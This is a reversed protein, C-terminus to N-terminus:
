KVETRKAYLSDCEDFFLLSQSLEAERFIASLNKASEGIYKSVVTSLDIQFLQLSLERALVQAAMTKGCGSPGSILVSLGRGRALKKGLDWERHVVSRYRLRSVIAHLQRTRDGPLVLYEWGYRPEVMLA